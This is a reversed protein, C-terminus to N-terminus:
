DNGLGMVKLAYDSLDSNLLDFDLQQIAIRNVQEWVSKKESYIQNLSAMAIPWIGQQYGVCMALTGPEIGLPPGQELAAQALQTSNFRAFNTEFKPKPTGLLLRLAFENAESEEEDSPAHELPDSIDIVAFSDEVHGLCAHGIEHALTFAIPAPYQADKGLLVVYKGDTRVVMAHMRKAYLPFLRLHVVPIGLAWCTSVLGRLDVFPRNELIAARLKLADVQGLENQQKSMCAILRGFSVGFSTLVAKEMETENSLSKFRADDRWVFKVEDDFLSEPSLGLKRAISFRLEANASPSKFADESWWGPWAADITPNSFGAEKLRKKLDRKSDM